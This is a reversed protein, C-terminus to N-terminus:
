NAEQRIIIQSYGKNGFLQVTATRATGTTNAPIHIFLNNSDSDLETYTTTGEHRQPALGIGWTYGSVVKGYSTNPMALVSYTSSVSPYRDITISKQLVGYQIVSTFTYEKGEMGSLDVFFLEMEIPSNPTDTCEKMGTILPTTYIERAIVVGRAKDPYDPDLTTNNKLSADRITRYFDGIPYYNLRGSDYIKWSSNSLGLQYGNQLYTERYTRYTGTFDLITFAEMDNSFGNMEAKEPSGAGTGSVSRIDLKYYSNGDISTLPTKAGGGNEIYLRLKYYGATTTGDKATYEGGVLVHFGKHADTGIDQIQYLYDPSSKPTSNIVSKTEPSVYSKELLLPASTPCNKWEVYNLKFNTATVGVSFKAVNRKLNIKGDTGSTSLANSIATANLTPLTIKQTAMVFLPSVSAEESTSVQNELDQLTKITGKDMPYNAVMYLTHEGSASPIGVTMKYETETWEVAPQEHVFVQGAANFIFFDISEVKETDDPETVARTQVLSEEQVNLKLVVQELEGSKGGAIESTDDVCALLCVSFFIGILGIYRMNYKM